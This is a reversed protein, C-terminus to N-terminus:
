RGTQSLSRFIHDVVGYPGVVLFETGELAADGLHAADGLLHHDLRHVREGIGVHRQRLLHDGGVRTEVGQLALDLILGDEGDRSALGHAHVQALDDAGNTQRASELAAAIVQFPTDAALPM